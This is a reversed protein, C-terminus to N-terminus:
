NDAVVVLLGPLTCNFAVLVMVTRTREVGTSAARVSDLSDGIVIHKWVM